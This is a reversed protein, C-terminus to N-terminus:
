CSPTRTSPHLSSASVAGYLADEGHASYYEKREFLRITGPIRQTDRLPWADAGRSRAGVNVDMVGRVTPLKRFFDAFATEQSNDATHSTRIFSLICLPATLIAPRDQQSGGALQVAAGLDFDKALAAKSTQYMVM